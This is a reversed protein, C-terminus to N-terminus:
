DDGVRDRSEWFTQGAKALGPGAVAALDTLFHTSISDLLSKALNLTRPTSKLSMRTCM